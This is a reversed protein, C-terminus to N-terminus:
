HKHDLNAADSFRTNRDYAQKLTSLILFVSVLTLNNFIDHVITCFLYTELTENNWSRRSTYKHDLNAAESFRTSYDYAPRLTLLILFVSVLTLNNFIDHM